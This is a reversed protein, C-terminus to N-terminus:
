SIRASATAVRAANIKLEYNYAYDVEVQDINDVDTDFDEGSYEFLECQLKYTNLKSLQYFPVEHEVHTIEFMKNTLPLFVIDGERPRGGSVENDYRSVMQSWRKRAIIFTAQDRIEVGFKTFLDGEGDFGDTNEIYM